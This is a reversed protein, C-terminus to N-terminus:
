DCMGSYAAFSAGKGLWFTKWGCKHIVFFLNGFALILFLVTCIALLFRNM